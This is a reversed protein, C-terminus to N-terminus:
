RDPRGGRRRHLQPLRVRHVLAQCGGPPRAWRRVREDDDPSDWMGYPHVVWEARRWPIPYGTRSRRAERFCCRSLTRRCLWTEPGASYRDAAEDPFATLYEASYYNRYIAPEDSMCQLEAYPMEAIMEGDHGLELM